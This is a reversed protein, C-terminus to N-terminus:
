IQDVSAFLHCHVLVGHDAVEVPNAARGQNSALKGLAGIALRREMKSPVRGYDALVSDLASIGNVDPIEAIDAAYSGLEHGMGDLRQSAGEASPGYRDPM